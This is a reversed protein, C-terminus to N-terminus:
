ERVRTKLAAQSTSAIGMWEEMSSAIPLEMVGSPVAGQKKTPMPAPKGVLYPMIAMAAAARASASSQDNDAVEWLIQLPGRKFKTALQRIADSVADPDIGLSACHARARHFEEGNASGLVSGKAAERAAAEELEAAIEASTRRHAVPRTRPRLVAGLFCM